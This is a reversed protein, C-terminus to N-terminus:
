NPKQQVNVLCNSWLSPKTLIKYNLTYQLMFHQGAQCMVSIVNRIMVYYSAAEVSLICRTGYFRAVEIKVMVM